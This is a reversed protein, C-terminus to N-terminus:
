FGSSVTTVLLDAIVRLINNKRLSLEVEPTVEAVSFYAKSRDCAKLILVCPLSNEACEGATLIQQCRTTANRVM